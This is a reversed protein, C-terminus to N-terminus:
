CLVAVEALGFAVWPLLSGKACTAQFLAMAERVRRDSAPGPSNNVPGPENYDGVANCLCRRNTTVEDM